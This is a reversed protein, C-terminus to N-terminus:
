KDTPTYTNIGRHTNARGTQLKRDTKGGEEVRGGGGERERTM